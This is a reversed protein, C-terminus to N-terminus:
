EVRLERVDIARDRHRRRVAVALVHRPTPRLRVFQWTEPDDDIAPTFRIGPRAADLQMSFGDLPLSLGMGRAKIYAEKLTWYDFFRAPREAEPLGDLAEAEDPSFFRRALEPGEIARSADEVDVGIEPEHAFACVVLGATHSINFSLPTGEPYSLSPRGYQNAVFACAAPDVSLYRGVLTRVMGRTVLFQHRDKEFVFRDHRAREEPAMLAAFRELTAADRIEDSRAYWLHVEDQGLAIAGM